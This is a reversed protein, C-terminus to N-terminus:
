NTASRVGRFINVVQTLLPASSETALVVDGPQITFRQAAFLGDASTLDFTFIVQQKRPANGTQSVMREPYERMVMVGRLDARTDSLGGITSLADLATIEEREFYVVQESGAAGLAIFTRNDEEVLVRDGGRLQIDNAPNEFLESAPIAYAEGARNLRVLPNRLSSSIGGTEALISLITPSVEPLEVRGPRAVGTVVDITNRSGPAVSLQVQGDPVISSMRQQVERRAQEATMGAIRLEGVYPIFVQGSASVPINQMNVNRQEGTTLLSDPQSDWVSLSVLDGARIIRATASAGTTMWRHRLEPHAIPWEQIDPLTERTIAIVQVHSTEDDTGRLVESQLAAGRPLSCGAVLAPIMLSMLAIRLIRANGHPISVRNRGLTQLDLSMTRTTNKM